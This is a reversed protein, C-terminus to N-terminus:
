CGGLFCCLWEVGVCVCVCECLMRESNLVMLCMFVLSLSLPAIVRASLPVVSAIRGVDCYSVLISSNRCVFWKWVVVISGM